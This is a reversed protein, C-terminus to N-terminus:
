SDVVALSAVDILEDVRVGRVKRAAALAGLVASTPDAHSAQWLVRVARCQDRERSDRRHMLGHWDWERVLAGFSRPDVADVTLAHLFRQIGADDLCGAAALAHRAVAIATRRLARKGAAHLLPAFDPPYDALEWEPEGAPVLDDPWEAVPFTCWQGALWSPDPRLGTIRGALAFMALVPDAREWPLDARLGELGDPAHGERYEPLVPEFATRVGGGAAHTFRACDAADWYVSVAETYETVRRLVEDRSGQRGDDEVILQWDGLQRVAIMAYTERRAFAEECFEEFDLSRARDTVAGFDAAVRDLTNGRVLTVCAAEHIASRRIWAANDLETGTPTDHM